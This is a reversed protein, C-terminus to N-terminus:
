NLPLIFFLAYLLVKKMGWFDGRPIAVPMLLFNIMMAVSSVTWLRKVVKVVFSLTHSYSEAL